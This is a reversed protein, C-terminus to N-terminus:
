SALRWRARALMLATQAVEVTTDFAEAVSLATVAESISLQEGIYDDLLRAPVLRGATIRRVREEELQMTLPHTDPGDLVDREDHTLEHTLVESRRRRSLRASVIVRRRRGDDVLAGGEPADVWVLESREIRQAMWRSADPPVAIDDKSQILVTPVRVYPLLTRIDTEFIMRAIRKRRDLFAVGPVEGIRRPAPDLPMM